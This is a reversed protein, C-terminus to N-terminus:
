FLPRLFSLWPFCLAVTAKSYLFDPSKLPINADDIPIERQKNEDSFAQYLDVKWKDDTVETKDGRSVQPQTLVTM